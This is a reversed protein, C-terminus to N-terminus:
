EAESQEASDAVAVLGFRAGAPDTLVQPDGAVRSAGLRLARETAAAVDAVAFTALWPSPAPNPEGLRKPAWTAVARGACLIRGDPLPVWGLVADLFARTRILQGIRLRVGALTGPGGPPLTGPFGLPQWLSLPGGGHDRVVATVAVGPVTTPRVLVTGGAAQVAKVSARIDGTQLYVTWYPQGPDEASGFGAVPRGDLTAVRYGMEDGPGVQWGLLRGYFAVAADPDDVGLDLWCVEGDSHLSGNM